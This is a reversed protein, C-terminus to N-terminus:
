GQGQDMCAESARNGEGQELLGALRDTGKWLFSIATVLVGAPVMLIGVTSIGLILVFYKLVKKLLGKM